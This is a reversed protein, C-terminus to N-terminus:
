GRKRHTRQVFGHNQETDTNKQLHECEELGKYIPGPKYNFVKFSFTAEGYQPIAKLFDNFRPIITNKLDALQQQDISM